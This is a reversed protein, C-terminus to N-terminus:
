QLIQVRKAGKLLLDTVETVRNEMEAKTIKAM